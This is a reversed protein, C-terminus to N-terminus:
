RDFSDKELTVYPMGMPTTLDKLYAHAWDVISADHGLSEKGAQWSGSITHGGDFLRHYYGGSHTRIYNADMVKDFHTVAGETLQKTWNLLEKDQLFIAAVAFLETKKEEVKDGVETLKTRLNQWAEEFYASDYNEQVATVKGSLYERINQLGSILMNENDRNQGPPQRKMVVGTRAEDFNRRPRLALMM